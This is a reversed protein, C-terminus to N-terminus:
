RGEEGWAQLSPTEEDDVEGALPVPLPGDGDGGPILHDLRKYLDLAAAEALRPTAVVGGAVRAAKQAAARGLPSLTGSRGLAALGRWLGRAAYFAVGIWVGFVMYAIRQGVFDEVVQNGEQPFLSWGHAVIAFSAALVLAAWPAADRSRLLMHTKQMANYSVYVWSCMLIVFAAVSPILESAAQLYQIADVLIAALLVGSALLHMDRLATRGVDTPRIAWVMWWLGVLVALLAATVMTTPLPLGTHRGWWWLLLAFAALGAAPIASWTRGRLHLRVHLAYIIEEMIFLLNFGALTFMIFSLIVIVLFLDNVHFAALGTAATVVYLAVVLAGAIPFARKGLGLWLGLAAFLFGLAALTAIRVTWVVFYPAFAPAVGLIALFALAGIIWPLVGRHRFPAKPLGAKKLKQLVPAHALGWPHRKEDPEADDNL